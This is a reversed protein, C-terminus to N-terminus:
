IPHWHLKGFAHLAKCRHCLDTTVSQCHQLYFISFSYVFFFFFFFFSWSYTLFCNYTFCRWQLCSVELQLGFFQIGKLWRPNAESDPALFSGWFLFDCSCCWFTESCNSPVVSYFLPKQCHLMQHTTNKRDQLGRKCCAIVTGANSKYVVQRGWFNLILSEGREILHGCLFGKFKVFLGRNIIEGPTRNIFWGAHLKYAFGRKSYM